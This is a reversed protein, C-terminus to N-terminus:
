LQLIVQFLYLFIFSFAFDVGETSYYVTAFM